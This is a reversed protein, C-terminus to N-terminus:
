PTKTCRLGSGLTQGPHTADCERRALNRGWRPRPNYGRTFRRGGVAPLRLGHVSSADRDFRGALPPPIKPM